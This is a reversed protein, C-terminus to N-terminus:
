HSFIVDPLPPLQPPLLPAYSDGVVRPSYVPTTKIPTQVPVYVVQPRTNRDTANKATYGEILGLAAIGLLELFKNSSNNIANPPTEVLRQAQQPRDFNVYEPNGSRWTSSVKGYKDKGVGDFYNDKVFSGQYSEGNKLTILGEGERVGKVFQGQYRSGDTYEEVGMGTLYGETFQGIYEGNSTTLKGQGEPKGNKLGGVYLGGAFNVSGTTISDNSTPDYGGGTYASDNSNVPTTTKSTEAKKTYKSIVISDPYVAVKDKLTDETLLDFRREHSLFGSLNAQIIKTKGIEVSVISLISNSQIDSDPPLNWKFVYYTPLLDLVMYQGSEVTGLAQSDMIMVGKKLALGFSSSKGLILCVRGMGDPIKKENAYVANNCLSIFIFFILSFINLKCLKFRSM